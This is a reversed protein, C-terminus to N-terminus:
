IVVLVCVLMETRDESCYLIGGVDAYVEQWRGLQLIFECVREEM